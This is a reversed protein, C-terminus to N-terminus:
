LVKPTQLLNFTYKVNIVIAVHNAFRFFSLRPFLNKNKRLFDMKLAIIFSIGVVFRLNVHCKMLNIAVFIEDFIIV